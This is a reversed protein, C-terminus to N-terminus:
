DLTILAMSPHSFTLRVVDDTAKNLTAKWWNDFVVGSTQYELGESVINLSNDPSFISVKRGKGVHLECSDWVPFSTSYDSVMDISIGKDQLGFLRGYEMLLSMNGVTHDERKGTAGLLHIETVGPYNELLHRVAKTQDNDEQEDIHILRDKYEEPVSDGDGVTAEAHPVHCVAGDCAIIHPAQELIELPIRHTPFQGNAVIVADFQMKKM